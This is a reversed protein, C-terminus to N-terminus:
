RSKSRLGKTVRKRFRHLALMLNRWILAVNDGISLNIRGARVYVSDSRDKFFVEYGNSQMWAEIDDLYPNKYVAGHTEISIVDPRSTMYKIVFWESGETDISILDISGDDITDFTTCDVTFQDEDSVIYGDNIIAPSTDLQTVFTSAKRQSLELTGEFDYAAVPHLTVNSYNGFTDNIRQISAPDPEILTTRVGAEIYDFINSTEPMYVGVEAVHSPEYGKRQLKLYLLKMPQYNTM